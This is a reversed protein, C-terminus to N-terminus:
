EEAVDVATVRGDAVTVRVDRIRFSVQSDERAERPLRGYFRALSELDAVDGVPPLVLPDVAAAEAVATVVAAELADLSGPAELPVTSRSSGGGNGADAGNTLRRNEGATHEDPVPTVV